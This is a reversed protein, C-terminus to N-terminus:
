SRGLKGLRSDLARKLKGAAGRVAGQLDVGLEDVAVPDLGAVRAEMLCRIDRGGKEANVDSLHVEVRTIRKEVHKLSSRVGEEVEQVLQDDGEISSDTNVKILVNSNRPSFPFFGDGTVQAHEGLDEAM